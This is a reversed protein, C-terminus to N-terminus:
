DYAQQGQSVGASRRSVVSSQCSVVEQLTAPSQGAPCGPVATGVHKKQLGVVSSQRSIENVSKATFASIMAM